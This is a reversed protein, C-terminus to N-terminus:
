KKVIVGDAMFTLEIKPETIKAIEEKSKGADEAYHRLQAVTTTDPMIMGEMIVTRGKIDRPVFFAYDKFHVMMADATGNDVGMWCGKKECVGTVAASLKVKQPTKADYTKLFDKFDVVDDKTIEAGFGGITNIKAYESDASAYCEEHTETKAQENKATNKCSFLVITSICITFLISKM